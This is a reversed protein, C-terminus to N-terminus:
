FGRLEVTKVYRRLIEAFGRVTSEPFPKIKSFEPDFTIGPRFSQLCYRSSGKLSEGIEEFDDADVIGPVCTTRFEYEIGSDMCVKASELVKLAAGKFGSFSDYKCFSTKIDLALYNLFGKSLLTKIVAPNSGNTDLKIQLGTRSIEEVLRPLEVSFTPEGGTIVVGDLKSKRDRLYGLVEEETVEFSGEAPILDPNQCYGCKFNCGQLFIVAALKGPYDVLSLKQLGAIRM